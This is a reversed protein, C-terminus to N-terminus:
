NKMSHEMYSRSLFIHGMQYTMPIVDSMINNYRRGKQTGDCLLLYYRSRIKWYCQHFSITSPTKSISMSVWWCYCVKHLSILIETNVMKTEYNNFTHAISIFWQLQTPWIFLFKMTCIKESAYLVITKSHIRQGM